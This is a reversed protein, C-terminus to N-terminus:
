TFKSIVNCFEMLIDREDDGTISKLRLRWTGDSEHLSGFGICIIKAFESFIGARESFVQAPDPPDQQQAKISRAKRDWENRLGNTLLAYDPVLSVTEIDIFLIQKLQKM